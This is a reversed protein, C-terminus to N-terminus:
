RPSPNGPAASYTPAAVITKVSGEGEMYVALLRAAEASVVTGSHSVQMAELFADGAKYAFRGVGEYEVELAGSLVYAFLPTGHRHWGTSQGPEITIIVASVKAPPKDPFRLTEGAVTRDTELLVQMPPYDAAAAAMASCALLSFLARRFIDIAALRKM